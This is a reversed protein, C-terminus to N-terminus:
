SGTELVILYGVMRRHEPDCDGADADYPLGCAFQFVGAKDATFTVQATGGRPDLRPTVVGFDPLIFSHASGRPNTVTLDVIDGKNVVIVDPEWRHFEATIVDEGDVEAITEGEGMILDLSHTGDDDLVILYGVMRRHEPDCDGAEADYPLGCAFQFVGAKDATFTVQATGGRSDLRPTVVGFDPLVFSHASGRPNTVTLDVIDGKNVVIVGPEWRHFEAVIVDEGDVEAITEGEGMILDLTQVVPAPTPTTTPTATPTPTPTPTATEEEGACGAFLLIALIPLAVLMWLKRNMM